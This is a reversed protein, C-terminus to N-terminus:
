CSKEKEVQETLSNKYNTQKTKQTWKLVNKIYFKDDDLALLEKFLQKATWSLVSEYLCYCEKLQEKPSNLIWYLQHLAKHRIDDLMIINKKEWVNYEDKLSKWIIHHRTQKREM